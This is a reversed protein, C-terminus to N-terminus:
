WGGVASDSRKFRLKEAYLGGPLRDSSGQAAMPNAYIKTEGGEAAKIRVPM